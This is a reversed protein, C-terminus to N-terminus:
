KSRIEDGKPIMRHLKKMVKNEPTQNEREKRLFKYVKSYLEKGLVNQIQLKDNEM